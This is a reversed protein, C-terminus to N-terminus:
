GRAYGYGPISRALSENNEQELREWMEDEDEPGYQPYRAALAEFSPIMGFEETFEEIAAQWTGAAKMEAARRQAADVLKGVAEMKQPSSVIACYGCTDNIRAKGCDPCVGQPSGTTKLTIISM